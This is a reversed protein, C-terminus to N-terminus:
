YDLRNIIASYVIATRADFHRIMDFYNSGGEQDSQVVELTEGESDSEKFFDEQNMSDLSNMIRDYNDLISGSTAMSELVPDSLEHPVPEAEEILRDAEYDDMDQVQPKEQGMLLVKELNELFGPRAQSESEENGKDVPKKKKGLLSVTIAVLTIVVYLINGIDFDM